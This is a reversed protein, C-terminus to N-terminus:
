KEGTNEQEADKQKTVSSLKIQQKHDALLANFRRQQEIYAQKQSKQNTNSFNYSVPDAVGAFPTTQIVQAPAELESEAVNNQVGIIMLGAASAAIAMQGVPKAFQVVKAKFKTVVNSKPQPALVTPEQEIAQAISASLDISVASSSEEKLTDRILHYRSWTDSMEADGVVSNLHQQETTEDDMLVSVTEFKNESM